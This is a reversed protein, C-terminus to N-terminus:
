DNKQAFTFDIKGHEDFYLVNSVSNNLLIVKAGFYLPKITYNGTLVKNLKNANEVNIDQNLINNFEINNISNKGNTSFQSYFSKAGPQDSSFPVIAINYQDTSYLNSIKNVSEINVFAGLQRQWHAAITTAVQKFHENDYYYITFSPIKGKFDKKVSNSFLEKAQEITTNNLNTNISLLIDQEANKPLFTNSYEYFVNKIQQLTNTDVCTILAQRMELPMKNSIKLAWITDSIYQKSYYDLNGLLDAYDTLFVGDITNDELRKIITDSNNVVLSLSNIKAKFNGDYNKSRRLTIKNTQTNWGRLSFSGNSLVTEPDRGYKGFSDNFFQENCPMSVPSCLLEFFSNEDSNITFEITKENIVRIALQSSNGKGSLIESAGNICKIQESFPSKTIPNVARLFAFKFDNATVNTGDSWFVNDNLTFTYQNGNKIYSKAAATVINGDSDFRMLGEFINRVILMETETSVLQPDLTTPISDVEFVLQSTASESCGTLSFLLIIVLFISLFKKTNKLLQVDKFKIFFM